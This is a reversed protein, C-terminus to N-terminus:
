SLQQQATLQITSLHLSNYIYRNLEIEVEMRAAFSQAGLTSAHEYM